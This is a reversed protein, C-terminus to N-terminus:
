VVAGDSPAIFGMSLCRIGHAQLPIIKDNEIEPQGSVGLMRPISPGHIDADLVGVSLGQATLAHALNVTTTSKGVGGKGSAVAIVRKVGELPTFNWQAPKAKAPTTM